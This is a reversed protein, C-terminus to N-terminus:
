LIKNNMKFYLCKIKYNLLNNSYRFIKKHISYQTMKKYNNFIKIMIMLSSKINVEKKKIEIGIIRKRKSGNMILSKLDLLEKQHSVKLM